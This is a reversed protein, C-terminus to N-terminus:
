GTGVTLDSIRMEFEDDIANEIRDIRVAVPYGYDPDYKADVQDAGGIWRQLFDFVQDITGPVEAEWGPDLEGPDMRLVGAPQGDVVTVRYDGYLLNLQGWFLTFEYTTIGTAEWKARQDALTAVAEDSGPPCLSRVKGGSIVVASEWEGGTLFAPLSAQTPHSEFSVAEGAELQIPDIRQGDDGCGLEASAAEVALRSAGDITTGDTLDVLLWWSSGGPDPGSAIIVAEIRGDDSATGDASSSPGSPPEVPVEVVSPRTATSEAPDEVVSSRTSTSESM